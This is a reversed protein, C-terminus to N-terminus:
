HIEDYTYGRRCHFQLNLNHKPLIRLSHFGVLRSRLQYTVVYSHHLDALVADLTNAISQQLSFSRGGTAEAMRWLAASASSAVASGSNVTYLVAGSAIVADLAERLSGMSVTDNGDSFLILVPRTGPNHRQAIVRAAYTLSDFLPTAGAAHISVLKQPIASGSCNGACLVNPHLGAFTIVSLRDEPNLENHALLKLLGDRTEDFRAAVSESADILLTVDLSTEESRMLSRFNRIVLGNDVIAFDDRGVTEVLRNEADTAFFTIRVESTSTRYATSPPDSAWSSPVLLLLVAWSWGQQHSLMAMVFCKSQRLWLELVCLYKRMVFTM